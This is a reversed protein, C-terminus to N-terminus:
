EGLSGRLTETQRERVVVVPKPQVVMEWRWEQGRVWPWRWEAALSLKFFPLEPGAMERSAGKALGPPGEM